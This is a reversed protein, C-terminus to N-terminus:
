TFRRIFRATLAGGAFVLAAGITVLAALTLTLVPGVDLLALIGLVAAAVGVLVMIGGSAQIANYTVRAYKPNRDPALLVLDPQAAGGLLLASGFVITAVPLIVFPVINSLALVGLVIGAIGAFVETSIGGSLEHRDIHAREFRRLATQWRAMVSGGQALLALGIAIVAIGAMYLTWYSFGIVGAVIATIGGIAEASSGSALVGATLNDEHRADAFARIREYDPNEYIAKAASLDRDKPSRAYGM